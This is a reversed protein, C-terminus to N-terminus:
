TTGDRYALCYAVGSMSRRWKRVRISHAALMERTIAEYRDGMTPRHARVGRRRVGVGARAAPRAPTERARGGKPRALSLVYEWLSLTM